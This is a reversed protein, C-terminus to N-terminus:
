FELSDLRSLDTGRFFSPYSHLFYSRKSSPYFGVIMNLSLLLPLSLPSPLAGGSRGSRVFDKTDAPLLLVLSLVFFAAKGGFFTELVLEVAVDAVRGVEAGTPSTLDDNGGVGAFVVDVLSFVVDEGDM